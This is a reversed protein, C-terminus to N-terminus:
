YDPQDLLKSIVVPAEIEPKAQGVVYRVVEAYYLPAKPCVHIQAILANLDCPLAAGAGPTPLRITARLEQEHAFSKQKLFGGYHAHGKEIEDSDFDMYRVRDVVIGQGKLAGELRAKTSEIAVGQGAATYLQWMAESEHENIHWCSVGFNSAADRRLKHISLRRQAEESIRDLPAHDRTPALTAISSLTRKLPDLLGAAIQAEANIHSRPLYGEYPDRLESTSCPFYISGTALMHVFKALDVYRWIKV